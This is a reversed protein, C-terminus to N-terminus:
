FQGEWISTSKRSTHQLVRNNNNNNGINNQKIKQRSPIVELHSLYFSGTILM